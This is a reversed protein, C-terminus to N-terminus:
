YIEKEYCAACYVKLNPREPITTEINKSCKVCVADRLKMPNKTRQRARFRCDPCKHPIPLNQKLYFALELPNIKYNKGCKKEKHALCGSECECSLIEQLISEGVGKINTPVQATAPLYEKPDSDLWRYGLSLAEAKDLSFSDNAVTENYAFPSNSIPFFEGYEGDEVMKKIIKKTLRNYEDESYQKNLICFEKHNLGICGFINKSSRIFYSYNVHRSETARLCFHCDYSNAVATTEYILESDRGGSYADFSNKYRMIDWLYKSNESFKLGFSSQCNKCDVINDGTCNESNVIALNKYKADQKIKEFESLAHSIMDHSGFDFEAMKKEYQERTLQQNMYCYQKNRLNASLFCDNCGRCDFLFSSGSCNNCFELYNCNNCNVCEICEYLSESDVAQMCDVCDKSHNGRYTYHCNQCSHTRACLYCDKCDGIDNNFDSNESKEVRLSPLPIELSLKYFQEFFSKNEDFDRGYHMPDFQDSWWVDKDCVKHPSDPSFISFIQKGTIDCKRLYLNRENRYSMRRKQRCEPCLSPPPIVFKEGDVIPSIKELFELDESNIEFQVQCQKCNKTQPM